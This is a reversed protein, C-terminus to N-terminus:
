LRPLKLDPVDEIWIDLISTIMGYEGSTGQSLPWRMHHANRAEDMTVKKPPKNMMSKHRVRFYRHVTHQWQLTLFFTINQSKHNRRNSYYKATGLIDCREMKIYFEKLTQNHEYLTYM